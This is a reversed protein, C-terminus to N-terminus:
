ISESGSQGILQRIANFQLASNLCVKTIENYILNGEQDTVRAIYLSANPATRLLVSAGHTGHGHADCLPDFSGPNTTRYDIDPFCDM